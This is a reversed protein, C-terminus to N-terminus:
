KCQMEFNIRTYTFTVSFKEGKALRLLLFFQEDFVSSLSIRKALEQFRSWLDDFIKFFLTKYCREKDKLSVGAFGVM